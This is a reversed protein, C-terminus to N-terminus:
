HRNKAEIFKNASLVTAPMAAIFLAGLLAFKVIFKKLNIRVLGYTRRCGLVFVLLVILRYIVLVIGGVNDFIHHRDHDNGIKTIITIMVNILGM